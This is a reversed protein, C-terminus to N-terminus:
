HQTCCCAIAQRAHAQWSGAGGSCISGCCCPGTAGGFMRGATGAAIGRRQVAHCVVLPWVLPQQVIRVVLVGHLM